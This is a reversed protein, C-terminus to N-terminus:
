GYDDGMAPLIATDFKQNPLNLSFANQSEACIKSLWLQQAQVAPTEINFSRSDNLSCESNSYKM